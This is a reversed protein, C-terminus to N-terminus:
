FIRKASERTSARAAAENECDMNSVRFEQSTSIAYGKSREDRDQLRKAISGSGHAVDGVRGTECLWVDRVMQRAQALAAQNDTHLISSEDM